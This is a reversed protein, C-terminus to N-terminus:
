CGHSWSEVADETREVNSHTQERTCNIWKHFLYFFSFYVEFLLLDYWNQLPSYYFLCFSLQSSAPNIYLIIFYFLPPSLGWVLLFSPFLTFQSIKLLIFCLYPYYLVVGSWKNVYIPGNIIYLLLQQSMKQLFIIYDKTYKCMAM